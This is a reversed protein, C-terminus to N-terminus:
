SGGKVRLVDVPRDAIVLVVVNPGFGVKGGFGVLM